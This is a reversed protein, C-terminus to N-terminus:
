APDLSHAAKHNDADRQAEARSDAFEGDMISEGCRGCQVDWFPGTVRVVPPRPTPLPPGGYESLPAGEPVEWLWPGSASRRWRQCLGKYAAKDLLAFVFRDEREGIADAVQKASSDPHSILWELARYLHGNMM